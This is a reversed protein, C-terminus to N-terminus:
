IGKFLEKLVDEITMTRRLLSFFFDKPIEAEKIKKRKEEEQVPVM